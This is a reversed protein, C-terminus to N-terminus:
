DSSTVEISRTPGGNVLTFGRDTSATAGTYRLTGSEIVLNSSASGSRGISSAAGGNAVTSIALVGGSLTTAGTYSNAGTLSATGAGAKTFGVAAGNN